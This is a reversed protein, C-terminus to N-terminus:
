DDSDPAGSSVLKVASDYLDKQAKKYSATDLMKNKTATERLKDAQQVLRTLVGLRRSDRDPASTDLKSVLSWIQKGEPSVSAGSPPALNFPIQSATIGNYTSQFFDRMDTAFLDGLNNPPLGLLLEETKVISATSYHRTAAFAPKAFPSIVIVPTRHPHIHDLTAQADDYSMFIASGTNKVSDYYVPSNMIHQVVTGLGVDGDAVEQFPLNTLNPDTSNPAQVGGTHDNPQYLFILQPLTNAAVMRDFDANFEAARRQDSINFNYGPYHLDMRPEGSKNNTGLIALIPQAMFYSQGLGANTTPTTTDGFNVLPNTVNTNGPQVLTPYGLNGSDPDNVTTPKSTGTDTGQVRAFGGYDKFSISNRAANNFIYGNFPYDEPEFNKNVLLGRGSKVLLTKETYDSATGSMAFQHGADSEESESYYNVGTAFASALAQTNLSVGTFQNNTYTSGDVNNFTSGAFLGFQPLGNLNGLMSDFTKNEHMIFFVHKIRPSATLGAPVVSTDAPPNIAFNNALVTTNDVVYSTLDVQQLSGFIYNSDVSPDSALGSPASPATTDIAPNIDEGVGKANAIYLFHGDPSVNVAAPYWGTPIRGILSPNVPDTTDLVAVSNLGAEAVYLRTQDPSVAMANPYTGRPTKLGDANGKLSISIPNLDIDTLPLGTALDIRSLKDINTKTIFLIESSASKVIATASPHTGGIKTTADPSVGLYRGKSVTMLSPFGGPVKLITISSSQPLLGSKSVPPLYFGDPQNGLSGLAVLKGTSDYTPNKFKYAMVGWNSVVVSQSDSRVAVGYPFYGVPLQAFISKTKTDIAAISNDGNCAVYVTRGDPSLAMGAPFTIQAGATRNIQSPAPPLNGSGDPTNLAAGPLYNSVFGQASPTIPFIHISAPTGATLVGATSLSFLKVDNDPGGSVWITYPGTGTAAMGVFYHTTSKFESVVSFTTSDIVTLTYGGKNVSSQYSSLSGEREDDDSTVIFHSDPTVAMGLPNMGIQISTGAPTVKRGNPLVGAYYSGLKNPGAQLEAASYNPNPDSSGYVPATVTGWNSNTITVSQAFLLGSSLVVAIVPRLSKAASVALRLPSIRKGLIQFKVIAESLHLRLFLRLLVGYFV